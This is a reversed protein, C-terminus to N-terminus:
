SDSKGPERLRNAVGEEIAAAAFAAAMWICIAIVGGIVVLYIHLRTADSADAADAVFSAISLGGIIAIVSVMAGLDAWQRHVVLAEAFFKSWRM